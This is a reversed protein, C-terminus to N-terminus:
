WCFSLLCTKRRDDSNASVHGTNNAISIPAAPPTKKKGFYNKYITTGLLLVGIVIIAVLVQHFTTVISKATNVGNFFGSFFKMWSWGEGPVQVTNIVKEEPM